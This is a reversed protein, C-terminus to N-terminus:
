RRKRKGKQEYWKKTNWGEKKNDVFPYDMQPLPKIIYEKPETRFAMQKEIIEDLNEEKGVVVISFDKHSFDKIAQQLEHEHEILLISIGKHNTLKPM